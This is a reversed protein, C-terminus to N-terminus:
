LQHDLSDLYKFQKGKLIRVKWHGLEEQKENNTKIYNTNVKNIIMGM